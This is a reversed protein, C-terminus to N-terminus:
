GLDVPNSCSIISVFLSFYSIYLERSESPPYEYLYHILLLCSPYSELLKEM